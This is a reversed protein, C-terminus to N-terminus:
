VNANRKAPADSHFFANMRRVLLARDDTRATIFDFRAGRERLDMDLNAGVAMREVGSLLLDEVGRATDFAEAAAVGLFAGLGSAAPLRQAMNSRSSPM